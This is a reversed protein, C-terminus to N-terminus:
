SGASNAARAPRATARKTSLYLFRHFIKQPPFTYRPHEVLLFKSREGRGTAVRAVKFALLAPLLNKLKKRQLGNFFGSEALPIWPFVLKKEQNEKSKRAAL